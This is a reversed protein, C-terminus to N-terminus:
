LLFCCFLFLIFYFIIYYASSFSFGLFFCPYVQIFKLLLLIVLLNGLPLKRLKKLIEIKKKRMKKRRRIQQQFKLHLLKELKREAIFQRLVLFFSVLAFFHCNHFFFGRIWLNGYGCVCVCLVMVDCVQIIGVLCNHIHKLRYM